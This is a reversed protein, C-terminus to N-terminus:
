LINASFTHLRGSLSVLRGVCSGSRGAGRGPRIKGVRCSPFHGVGKAKM